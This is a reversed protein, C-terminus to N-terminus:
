IYVCLFTKRGWGVRVSHGDRDDTGTGTGAAEPMSVLVSVLVSVSVSVPVPAPTLPLPAYVHGADVVDRTSTAWAGASPKREVGAEPLHM